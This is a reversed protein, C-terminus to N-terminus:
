CSGYGYGSPYPNVAVANEYADSQSEQNFVKAAKRLTGNNQITEEEEISSVNNSSGAKFSYKGRVPIKHTTRAEGKNTICGETVNVTRAYDKLTEDDLKKSMLDKLVERHNKGSESGLANAVKEYSGDSVKVKEQLHFYLKSQVLRYLYVDSNTTGKPGKAILGLEEMRQLNQLAVEMEEPSLRKNNMRKAQAVARDHAEGEGYRHRVVKRTKPQEPKESPQPAQEAPKQAPEAPKQVPEAPKQVPEAPKQVPEAPKQAPEAPKQVPEAPKQVPEVPKQAPEAPKQAPTSPQAPETKAPASELGRVHQLARSFTGTLGEGERGNQYTGYGMSNAEEIKDPVEASKYGPVKTAACYCDVFFIKEGDNSNDYKNLEEMIIKQDEVSYQDFPRVSGRVLKRTKAFRLFSEEDSLKCDTIGGPDPNLIQVGRKGCAVAFNQLAEAAEKYDM